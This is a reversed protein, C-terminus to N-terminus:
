EGFGYIGGRLDLIYLEGGGDEGFSAIRLNTDALEISETVRAGDYRLAWIKGSCYDGYVYAGYLSPFRAGRYVYGGTVSCGDDRGYVAVPLELDAFETGRSRSYIEDGEMTNWGYNLGRRVINVEELRNQGVDAAWMEGTESDFSFRWPNRLGYAWIEPRAGEVGMFPNDSPVGYRRESDMDSVDLRLIAGLLTERDQGNGKPDGASGGDGLGIYLFDDPGFAIQGGNHNAYPQEIELVIIESGSDAATRDARLSFRSVVSRRPSAATYYVYFLGNSDFRPDLAIGLLGEEQGRDNVRDRIDLFVGVDRGDEGLAVIRGAQEAVFARGAGDDSFELAVPRDFSLGPYAPEVSLRKLPETRGFGEWTPVPTITPPLAFRSAPTITPALSFTSVPTITPALEFQSMPTITPALTFTPAPTVTSLFVRPFASEQRDPTPLAEFVADGDVCAMCVLSALLGLITIKMGM